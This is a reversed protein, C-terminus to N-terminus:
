MGDGQWSPIDGMGHMQNPLYAGFQSPVTGQTGPVSGITPAPSYFGMGAPKPLYAGLGNMSSGYDIFDQYGSLGPVTPAFSALLPKLAGYAVVTLAGLTAANAKERSVVKRALFGLGIAGATKVLVPLFGTQLSAPLYKGAYAYAVDLVIAGTAGVAAPMVTHTIGRIGFPNSRRHRRHSRRSARMPNKRRRRKVISHSRRRRRRPAAVVASSARRKRRRKTVKTGRRKSAWYRRLGAPMKGKRSKRKKRRPNVLFLAESM